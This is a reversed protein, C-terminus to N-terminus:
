DRSSQQFAPGENGFPSLVGLGHLPRRQPDAHMEFLFLNGTPESRDMGSEEFTIEPNTVKFTSPSISVNLTGNYFDDLNLGLEKFFPKQKEITGYPYDDSPRSAVQHGQVVIGKLTISKMQEWGIISLQGERGHDGM